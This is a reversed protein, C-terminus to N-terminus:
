AIDIDSYSHEEVCVTVIFLMAIIHKGIWQCDHHAKQCFFYYHPKGAKVTLKSKFAHVDSPVAGRSM